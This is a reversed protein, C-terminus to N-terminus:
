PEAPDRSDLWYLIEEALMGAVRRHGEPSRHFGDPLVTDFGGEAVLRSTRVLRIEPDDYGAVVEALISNYRVVRQEVGPLWHTVRPGPPDIDCLLVLPRVELRTLDIIRRLEIAFREASLRATRGGVRAHAYRQWTRLAHWLPPAVRARYWRAARASPLDWTTMHRVWSTPVVCAQCEAMGYNVVLVDPFRNRIADEYRRRLENVMGFWRGDVTVRAPVGRERLLPGLLEGYTAEDRSARPPHIMVATSSGAVLVHLPHEPTPRSRM